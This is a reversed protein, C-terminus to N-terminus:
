IKELGNVFLQIMRLLAQTEDTKMNKRGHKQLEINRVLKYVARRVAPTKNKEIKRAMTELRAILKRKLITPFEAHEVFSQITKIYLMPDFVAHDSSTADITGNGDFDIKITHPDSPYIHAITDPTVPIDEYMTTNATDIDTSTSFTYSFTGFGTGAIDISQISDMNSVAVYKGEGMEIYKSGPIDEKYFILDSDTDPYVRGTFNGYKDTMSIDVPSHVGALSIDRLVDAASAIKTCPQGKIFLLLCNRVSEFELINAHSYSQKNKKNELAIDIVRTASAFHGLASEFVVTGDGGNTFVPQHDLTGDKLYKYKISSITPTDNGIIQAVAIGTPPKWEDLAGHLLLSQKLLVQNNNVLFADLSNKSTISTTPTTIVPKLSTYFYSSSPLLNFAAPLNKAFDKATSQSLIIGKAIEEGEGYMLATIAKPTGFHPVAVFVVRDILDSMNKQVLTNILYKALLGGNSHAIITVKKSKSTSALEGLVSIANSKYLIDELSLRWDYTLPKWAAITGSAVFSNMQEIFSKYVQIKFRPFINTESIIDKTYIGTTLSKGKEDLYLKKVDANRNPEWLQNEGGFMNNVYLRSSEIGPLFLINSCCTVTEIPQALTPPEILWPSFFINGSVTSTPGLTSGWWNNRVDTVSLADSLVNFKTNFAITSSAIMVSYEDQAFAYKQRFLKDIFVMVPPRDQVELGIRNHELDVYSARLSSRYVYLGTGSVNKISVNELTATANNLRIGNFSNAFSSNKIDLTGLNQTLEIGVFTVNSVFSTSANENIFVSGFGDGEIIIKQNETGSAILQGEIFLEHDGISLRSGPLLLIKADRSVHIDGGTIYPSGDVTLTIDQLIETEITTTAYAEPLHVRYIVFSLTLCLACIFINKM